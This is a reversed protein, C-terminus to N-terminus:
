AYALAARVKRSRRLAGGVVGFGLIMLAWTSPEPVGGAFGGYEVIYGYGAGANIDNWGAGFNIHLADEDGVNNPEGANWAAYTVTGLGTQWFVTGSEPGEVWVWTGETRADSGAAWATSTTITSRIFDQEGQSTITVLYGQRGDFSLGRALTRATEFDVSQGIYEYAHGNGGWVIPAGMAPVAFAATAAAATTVLKHM